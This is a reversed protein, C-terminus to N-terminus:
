SPLSRRAARRVALAMSLPVAAALMPLLASGPVDAGPLLAWDALALLTGGSALLVGWRIMDMGSVQAEEQPMTVMTHMATAAALVGYVLMLLGYLPAFTHYFRPHYLLELGQCVLLVVWPAYLLCTGMRSEGLRKPKPFLLFFRLLFLTWLVVGAVQIHGTVGRWAGVNPGPLAVGLALGIYAMRLAQASRVTLFVWLGSAMFSLLFATAGYRLAAPVPRASGYLVRARVPEGEREVEMLLSQGPAPSLSRPYRSYMGLEEVAIGEVSVVSDGVHLGARDLRGGREVHRIVYDPDYLVLAEAREGGDAIGAVGWAIVVVYAAVVWVPRGVRTGDQGIM